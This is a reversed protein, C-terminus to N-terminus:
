CLMYIGVFIVFLIYLMWGGGILGKSIFESEGARVMYVTRPITHVNMVFSAIKTPLFGQLSHLEIKDGSDILQHCWM